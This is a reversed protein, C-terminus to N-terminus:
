AESQLQKDLLAEFKRSDSIHNVQAYNVSKQILERYNPWFDLGDKCTRDEKNYYDLLIEVYNKALDEKHFVFLGLDAFYKITPITPKIPLFKYKGKPASILLPVHYVKVGKTNPEYKFKKELFRIALPNITVLDRIHKKLRNKNRRKFASPEQLDTPLVRYNNWKDFDLILHYLNNDSTRGSKGLLNIETVFCKDRFKKSHYSTDKIKSTATSISSRKEIVWHIYTKLEQSITSDEPFFLENYLHYHNTFMELFKKGRQYIELFKYHAKGMIEGAQWTSKGEALILTIALKEDSALVAWAQKNIKKIEPM